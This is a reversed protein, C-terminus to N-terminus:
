KQQSKKNQTFGITEKAKGYCFLIIRVGLLSCILGTGRVTKVVYEVGDCLNNFLSSFPSIKSSSLTTTTYTRPRFPNNYPDNYSFGPKMGTFGLRMKKALYNMKKEFNDLTDIAYAPAAIIATFAIIITYLNKM